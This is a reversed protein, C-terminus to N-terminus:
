ASAALERPARGGRGPRGAAREEGADVAAVEAGRLAHDQERHQPEDNASSRWRRLATLFTSAATALPTAATSKMATASTAQSAAASIAPPEITPARDARVVAPPQRLHPQAPDHDDAARDDGDDEDDVSSRARDMCYWACGHMFRAAVGSRLASRRWAIRSASARSPLTTAARRTSSSPTESSVTRRSRRSSAAWPRTWRTWPPASAARAAAPSTRGGARSRCPRRWARARRLGGDRTSARRARSGARRSSSWGRARGGAARRGRRARHQGVRRRDGGREGVVRGGLDHHDAPPEVLARLHRTPAAATSKM